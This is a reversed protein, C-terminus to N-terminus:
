WWLRKEVLQKCALLRWKNRDWDFSKLQMLVLHSVLPKNTYEQNTHHSTAQCRFYSRSSRLEYRTSYLRFRQFRQFKTKWTELPRTKKTHIPLILKVLFRNSFEHQSDCIANPLAGCLKSIGELTTAEHFNQAAVWRANAENVETWMSNVVFASATSIYYIWFYWFRSFIELYRFTWLAKDRFKNELFYWCFILLCIVLNGSNTWYM